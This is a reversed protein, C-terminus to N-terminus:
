LGLSYISINLDASRKETNLMMRKEFSPIKRAISM